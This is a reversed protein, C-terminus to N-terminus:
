AVDRDFIMLFPSLTTASARNCGEATALESPSDQGADKDASAARALSDERFAAGILGAGALGASASALFSRRTAM